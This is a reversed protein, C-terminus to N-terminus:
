SRICEWLDNAMGYARQNEKNNAKAVSCSRSLQLIIAEQNARVDLVADGETSEKSTSMDSISMVCSFKQVIYTATEDRFM